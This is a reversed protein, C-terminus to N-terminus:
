VAGSAWARGGDAHQNRCHASCLDSQCPPLLSYPTLLSSSLLLTLSSLSLFSPPTPTDQGARSCDVTFTNRQGIFAKSLGSGRSVVQSSDSSFRPLASFAGGVGAVAAKSVTEVLM